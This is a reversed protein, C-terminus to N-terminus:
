ESGSHEEDTEGAKTSTLDGSMLLREYEQPNEIDMHALREEKLTVEDRTTGVEEFLQDLPQVPAEFLPNGKFLVRISGLQFDVVGAEGCVKIISCIDGSSFSKEM